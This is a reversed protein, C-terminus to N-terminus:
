DNSPWGAGLVHCLSADHFYQVLFNGFPWNCEEAEKKKLKAIIERHNQACLVLM